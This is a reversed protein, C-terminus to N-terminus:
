AFSMEYDECFISNARDLAPVFLNKKKSVSVVLDKRLFSIELYEPLGCETIPGSNNGHVHVIDFEKQLGPVAAMFCHHSATGVGHFEIAMGMIRDRHQCLDDVLNYEGGEIDIKVFVNQGPLRRMAEEFELFSDDIFKKNVRQQFFVCQGQFFQTLDVVDDCAQDDYAHIVINESRTLWDQEFSWDYGIGLSLLADAQAVCLEPIVYGGDQDCGVRCLEVQSPMLFAFQADLLIKHTM